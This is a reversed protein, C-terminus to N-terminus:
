FAFINKIKMINIYKTKFLIKEDTMKNLNGLNM